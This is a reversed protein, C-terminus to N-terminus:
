IFIKGELSWDVNMLNEPFQIQNSKILSIKDTEGKWVIYRWQQENIKIRENINSTYSHWLHFTNVEELDIQFYKNIKSIRYNFESDESGHGIFREDYGDIKNFSNLHVLGNGPAFYKSARQNDKNNFYIQKCEDYNQPLNESKGINYNSFIVRIPNKVLTFLSMYEIFTPPYVLDIDSTFFYESKIMNKVGINITKSKCYLETDNYCHFYQLDFDKLEQKICDFSTNCVCIRVNQDKLSKISIKLRKVAEEINLSEFHFPYLIDFIKTKIKIECSRIADLLVSKKKLEDIILIQNNVTNILDVPVLEFKNRYKQFVENSVVYQRGNFPIIRKIESINLDRGSRNIIVPM